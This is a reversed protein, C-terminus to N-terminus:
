HAPLHQVVQEGVQGGALGTVVGLEQGAEALELQEGGGLPAGDQVGAEGREGGPGRVQGPEGVGAAAVGPARYHDGLEGAAGGGGRRGPRPSAARRGRPRVGGARSPVRAMVAVVLVVPVMAAALGGPAPSPTSAGYPSSAPGSSDISSALMMLTATAGMAR